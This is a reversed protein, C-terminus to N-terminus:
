FSLEGDGPHQYSSVKSNEGNRYSKRKDKTQSPTVGPIPGPIQLSNHEDERAVKVVSNEKYISNNVAPEMIDSFIIYINM